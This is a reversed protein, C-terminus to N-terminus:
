YRVWGTSTATWTAACETRGVDVDLDDFSWEEYEVEDNAKERAFLRQSPAFNESFFDRLKEADQAEPGCKFEVKVKVTTPVFWGLDPVTDWEADGCEANVNVRFSPVAGLEGEKWAKPMDALFEAEVRKEIDREVASANFKAVERYDRDGVGALKTRRDYTYTM